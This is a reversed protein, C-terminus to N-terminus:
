GIHRKFEPPAKAKPKGKRGKPLKPPGDKYMLLLKWVPFSTYVLKSAFRLWPNQNHVCEERRYQQCKKFEEALMPFRVGDGVGEANASRSRALESLTDHTGLHGNRIALDWGTMNQPNKSTTDCGRFIFLSAVHPVDAICAQMYPTNGNEDRAELGDQGLIILYKQVGAKQGEVIAQRFKKAAVLTPLEAVGSYIGEDKNAAIVSAAFSSDISARRQILWPAVQAKKLPITEISGGLTNTDVSGRRARRKTKSAVLRDMAAATSADKEKRVYARTADREQELAGREAPISLSGRRGRSM